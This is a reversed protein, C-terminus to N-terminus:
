LFIWKHFTVNSLFRDELYKIPCPGMEAILAISLDRLDNVMSMHAHLVQSECQTPLHGKVWTM